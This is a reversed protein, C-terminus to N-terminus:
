IFRWAFSCPIQFWFLHSGRSLTKCELLFLSGKLIGQHHNWKLSTLWIFVVTCFNNQLVSFTSYASNRTCEVECFSFPAYRGHMWQIFSSHAPMKVWWAHFEDHSHGRFLVCYWVTSMRDSEMMQFSFAINILTYWSFFHLRKALFFGKVKKTILLINKARDNRPLIGTINIIMYINLM